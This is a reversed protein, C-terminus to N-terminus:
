VRPKIPLNLGSTIEDITICSDIISIVRELVELRTDRAIQTTISDTPNMAQFFKEAAVWRDISDRTMEVANM